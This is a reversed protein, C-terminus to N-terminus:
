RKLRISVIWEEDTKQENATKVADNINNVNINLERERVLLISWVM